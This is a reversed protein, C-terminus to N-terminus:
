AVLTVVKQKEMKFTSVIGVTDSELLGEFPGGLMLPFINQCCTVCSRTKWAVPASDQWVSEFQNWTAGSLHSSSNTLPRTMLAQYVLMSQINKMCSALAQGGSQGDWSQSSPSRNRHREGSKGHSVTISPPTTLSCPETAHWSQWLSNNRM